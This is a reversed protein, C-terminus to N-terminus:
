LKDLELKAKVGYKPSNKIKKLVKKAAKADDQKLYIQALNWYADDQYASNRNAAIKEFATEADQLKGSDLLSLAETYADADTSSYDPTSKKYKDNKAVSVESLDGTSFGNTQNVEPSENSNFYLNNELQANGAVSEESETIPEANAKNEVSRAPSTQEAQREKALEDKRDATYNHKDSAAPKRRVPENQLDYEAEIAEEDVEVDDDLLKEELVALLEPQTSDTVSDLLVHQQSSDLPQAFANRANNDRGPVVDSDIKQELEARVMASNKSSFPSSLGWWIVAGATALILVSAAISLIAKGSLKKTTTGTGSSGEQVPSVVAAAGSKLQIQRNLSDVVKQLKEPQAAEKIGEAADSLLPSATIKDEVEQKKSGLLNGKVYKILQELSLWINNSNESPKSM